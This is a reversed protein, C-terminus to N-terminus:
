IWQRCVPYVLTSKAHLLEITEWSHFEMFRFMQLRPWYNMIFFCLVVSKDSQILGLKTLIYLSLLGPSIWKPLSALLTCWTLKNIYFNFEVFRFIQQWFIYIFWDEETLRTKSIKCFRMFLLELSNYILRDEKTLCTKSIKFFMDLLQPKLQEENSLYISINM